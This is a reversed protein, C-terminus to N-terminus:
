KETTLSDRAQELIRKYDPSHPETLEKELSCCFNWLAQSEAPHDIKLEDSDSFRSLLEFLVVAEDASLNINYRKEVPNTENM